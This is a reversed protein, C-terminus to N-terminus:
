PEVIVPKIEPINETVVDPKPIEHTKPSAPRDVNRSENQTTVEGEKISIESKEKKSIVSLSSKKGEEM